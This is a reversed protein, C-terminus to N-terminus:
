TNAKHQIQTETPMEMPYLLETIRVGYQNDTVVVEGYAVLKHNVWVECPEEAPKPLDIVSGLSLQWLEQAPLHTRGLEIRLLIPEDPPALEDRLGYLLAEVEQPSLLPRM